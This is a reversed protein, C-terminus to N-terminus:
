ESVSGLRKALWPWQTMQVEEVSVKLLPLLFRMAGVVERNRACINM